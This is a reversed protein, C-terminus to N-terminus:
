TRDEPDPAATNSVTVPKGDYHGSHERQKGPLREAHGREIDGQGIEDHVRGERCAVREASILLNAVIGIPGVYKRKRNLLGDHRRNSCRDSGPLNEHVGRGDREREGEKRPTKDFPRRQSQPFANESAFRRESRPDTAPARQDGGCRAGAPSSASNSITRWRRMAICERGSGSGGFDGGDRGRGPRFSGTDRWSSPSVRRM